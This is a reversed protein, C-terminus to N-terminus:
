NFIIILTLKNKLNKRLKKLCKLFYFVSRVVNAILIVVSLEYGM